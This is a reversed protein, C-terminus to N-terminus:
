NWQALNRIRQSDLAVAMIKALRAELEQPTGDHAQRIKCCDDLIPDSEPLRLQKVLEFLRRAQDMPLRYSRHLEKIQRKAGEKSFVALIIILESGVQRAALFIYAIKGCCDCPAVGVFPKGYM